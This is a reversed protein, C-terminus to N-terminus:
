AFVPRATPTVAFSAGRAADWLRVDLSAFITTTPDGGSVLLAFARHVADTAGLPYAATISAKTNCYKAKKIASGHADGEVVTGLLQGRELAALAAGVALEQDDPAPSADTLRLKQRAEQLPLSPEQELSRLPELGVM